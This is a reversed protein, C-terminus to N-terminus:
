SNPKDLDGNDSSGKGSPSGSQVSQLANTLVKLSEYPMGEIVRCYADRFTTYGIEWWDVALTGVGAMTLRVFSDSDDYIRHMYLSSMKKEDKESSADVYAEVAGAIESLKEPSYNDSHIHKTLYPYIASSYKLWFQDDYHQRVFSSIGALRLLPIERVFRERQEYTINLSRRTEEDPLQSFDEELPMAKLYWRNVWHALPIPSQFSEKEDPTPTEAHQPETGHEANAKPKKPLFRDFFAM